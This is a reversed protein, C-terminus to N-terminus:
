QKVKKKGFIKQFINKKKKPPTVTIVQGPKKEEKVKTNDALLVTDSTIVNYITGGYLSRHQENENWIDGGPDKILVQAGLTNPATTGVTVKMSQWTRASDLSYIYNVQEADFYINTKPYYYYRQVPVDEKKQQCAPQLVVACLLLLFSLYRAILM